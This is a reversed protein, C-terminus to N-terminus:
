YNYSKSAKNGKLVTSMLSRKNGIVAKLQEENMSYYLLRNLFSCGSTRHFFMNSSSGVIHVALTVMLATVLWNFGKNLMPEYLGLLLLYTGTIIAFGGMFTCCLIWPVSQSKKSSEFRLNEEHWVFPHHVYPGLRYFKHNLALAKALLPTLMKEWTLGPLICFFSFKFYSLLCYSSIDWSFLNYLKNSLYIIVIHLQNLDPCTSSM